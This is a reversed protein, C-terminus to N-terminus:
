FMDRTMLRYREKGETWFVKFRGHAAVIRPHTARVGPASLRSIASWNLGGDNSVAALISPSQANDAHGDWVIAIKGDSSAAIDPHSATADGLQKPDSWTADGDKSRTHYVGLAGDKGTWVAAHM